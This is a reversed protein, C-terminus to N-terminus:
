QCSIKDSALIRNMPTNTTSLKNLDALTQSSINVVCARCMCVSLVVVIDYNDVVLDFM